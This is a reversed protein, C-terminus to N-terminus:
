DVKEMHKTVRIMERSLFESAGEAGWIGLTAPWGKINPGGGLKGAQTDVWFLLGM